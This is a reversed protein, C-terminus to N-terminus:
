GRSEQLVACELLMYDITLTQGCKHFTTPTGRSLIHTKTAETHGIPLRTILVEEPRNLHQLKKPPRLTEKFLHLAMSHVAVGWNNQVLQRIYLNVLSKLDAYHVSALTDIVQITYMKMEKLAVFAQFLVSVFM